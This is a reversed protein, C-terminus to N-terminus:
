AVDAKVVTMDQSAEQARQIQQRVDLGPHPEVDAKDEALIPLSITVTTGEGKRSAINMSGGHLESLARVLSLGLGTGRKEIDRANAAQQYPQGLRATEEPDIGVGSDGVAMVLQGGSARAMVVIAGGKPTFKVANSLLNLLIQRLAKRDGDVLLPGDHRKIKLNIGAEEAQLRMMKASLNVVEGIDFTERVLEYRDAEIKSMDLVDGILEMLHQGSEHILDAYEAYRAPLPGFLRAKMVDSFGIIANLPTRLEHSVSALFQSKARADEEAAERDHRAQTLAAQLAPGSDKSLTIVSGGHIPRTKVIVDESHGRPGRVVLPGEVDRLAARRGSAALQARDDDDFGLDALPLGKLDRPLGPSLDRLGRSAALIHGDADCAVLPVPSADFAKARVRGREAEARALDADHVARLAGFAFGTSLTLVCGLVFPLHFEIAMPAPAVFGTLQLGSIVLAALGSQAAAKIVGDREGCAAAMAPALLFALVGIGTVGGGTLTVGVAFGTWVLALLFREFARDMRPVLIFSLLAPAAIAAVLLSKEVATGDIIPWLRPLAAALTGLWILNVLTGGQRAFWATIAPSKPKMKFRHSESKYSCPIKAKSTLM